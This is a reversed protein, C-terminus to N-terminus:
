YGDRGGCSRVVQVFGLFLFFEMFLVFIKNVGGYVSSWDRTFKDYFLWTVCFQIFCFLLVDWYIYYLRFFDSYWVFFRISGERVIFGVFVYLRLFVKVCAFFFASFGFYICVFLFVRVSVFSFFQIIFIKVKFKKKFVNVFRLFGFVILFVLM